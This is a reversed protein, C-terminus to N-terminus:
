RKKHQKMAAKKPDDIVFDVSYGTGKLATKQKWADRWEQPTQYQGGAISKRDDLSPVPRDAPGDYWEKPTLTQGLVDQGEREMEELGHAGAAIARTVAMLVWAGDSTFGLDSMVASMSGIMDICVDGLEAKAAKELANIFPIYQMKKISSIASLKKEAFNLLKRPAPDKLYLKNIGFHIENKCEKLCLKAAEDLSMGEEVKAVYKGLMKGTSDYSAYAHGFALISGGCAQTLYSKGRVILRAILAPNSLGDELGLIMAYNLVANEEILPIRAQWNIFLFDVIGYGAEALETTCWGRTVIRHINKYALESVWRFSERNDPPLTGIERNLYNYRLRPDALNGVPKRNAFKMQEIRPDVHTM